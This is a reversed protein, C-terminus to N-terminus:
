QKWHAELDLRLQAELTRSPWKQLSADPYWVPKGTTSPRCRGRRRQKERCVFVLNITCLILKYGQWEHIVRQIVSSLSTHLCHSSALSGLVVPLHYYVKWWFVIVIPTSIEEESLELQHTRRTEKGESSCNWWDTSKDGDTAMSSRHTPPASRERRM